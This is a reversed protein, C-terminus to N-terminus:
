PTGGTNVPCPIAASNSNYITAHQVNDETFDGSNNNTDACGNKSRFDGDADNPVSVASGESWLPAGVDLADIVEGGSSANPASGTPLNSTELETTTNALILLGGDDCTSAGTSTTDGP